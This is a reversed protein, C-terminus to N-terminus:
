SGGGSYGKDRGSWEAVDVGVVGDGAVNERECVEGGGGTVSTGGEEGGGTVASDADMGEGGSGGRCIGGGDDVVAGDEGVEVWVGGRRVEEEGFAWLFGGEVVEAERV